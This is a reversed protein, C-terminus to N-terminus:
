QAAVKVYDVLIAGVPPAMFTIKKGSITYGSVRVGAIYVQVTNAVPTDPLAFILPSATSTPTVNSRQNSATSLKVWGLNTGSQGTKVWQPAGTTDDTQVFITNVTGRIVGNPNGKGSTNVAAPAVLSVLKQMAEALLPDRQRIGELEPFSM